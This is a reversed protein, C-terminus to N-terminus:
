STTSWCCDRGPLDRHASARFAGRVNAKRKSAPLRAQLATRRRRSLLHAALPVKLHAALREAVTHPSNVGRRIRRSWHMPVPVVADPEWAALRDSRRAFLLDGLSMALGPNTDTKMRLVASRLAGEYRGLRVVSDFHWRKGQCHAAARAQNRRRLRLAAVRAVLRTDILQQRCDACLLVGDCADLVGHCLTCAPPFVLDLGLGLGRRLRAPVAWREIRLAALGRMVEGALLGCSLETCQISDAAAPPIFCEAARIHLVIAFGGLWRTDGVLSRSLWTNQRAQWPAPM